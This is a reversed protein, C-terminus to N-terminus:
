ILRMYPWFSCGNKLSQSPKKTDCEGFLTSITKQRSCEIVNTQKTSTIFTFVTRYITYTFSDIHNIRRNHQTNFFMCCPDIFIM